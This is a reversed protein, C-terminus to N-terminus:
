LSCLTLDAVINQFHNNNCHWVHHVCRDLGQMPLQIQLDAVLVLGALVLDAVAVALDRTVALGVALRGLTQPQLRHLRPSNLSSPSSSSPFVEVKGLVVRPRPAALAEKPSRLALGVPSNSSFVTHPFLFCDAM